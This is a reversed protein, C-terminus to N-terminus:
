TKKAETDAISADVVGRISKKRKIKIMRTKKKRVRVRAQKALQVLRKRKADKAEQKAKRVNEPLKSELIRTADIVRQIVVEESPKPVVKQLTPPPPMTDENKVASLLDESTKDQRSRSKAAETSLHRLVKDAASERRKLLEPTISTIKSKKKKACCVVTKFQTSVTTILWYMFVVNIAVIIWAVIDSLTDWDIWWRRRWEQNTDAGLQLSGLFITGLAVFVTKNKM